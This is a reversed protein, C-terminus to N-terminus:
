PLVLNSQKVPRYHLWSTQIAPPRWSGRRWGWWHMPAIYFASPCAQWGYYTAWWAFSSASLIGGGHCQTMRFFDDEATGTAVTVRPDGSFLTELYPADDSFALFQCQGDRAHIEAMQEFYWSEPLAAPSESSPWHLYDGRRVHLFYLHHPEARAHQQIWRRAQSVRCARLPAASLDLSCAIREDQFYGDLVAVARLLGAKFTIVSQGQNHSEGLISILRTRALCRVVRSRRARRIVRKLLRLRWSNHPQGAIHVCRQLSGFGVLIIRARPAAHRAAFYQFLQNGLRGNEILLLTKISNAGFPAVM